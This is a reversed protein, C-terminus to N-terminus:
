RAIVGPRIAAQRNAISLVVRAGVSMWAYVLLLVAPAVLVIAGVGLGIQRLM